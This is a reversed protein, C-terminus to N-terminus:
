PKDLHADDDPKSLHYGAFFVFAVLILAAFAPRGFIDLAKDIV